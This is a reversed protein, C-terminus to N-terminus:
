SKITLGLPFNIDRQLSDNGNLGQGLLEYTAVPEVMGLEKRAVELQKFIARTQEASVTKPKNM